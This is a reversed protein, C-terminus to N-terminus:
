FTKSGIAGRLWNGNNKSYKRGTNTAHWELWNCPLPAAVGNLKEKKGIPALLKRWLGFILGPHYFYQDEYTLLCTEYKDFLHSDVPFRWQGDRAIKASM